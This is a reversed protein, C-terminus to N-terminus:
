IIGEKDAFWKAVKIEIEEGRGFEAAEISNCTANSLCVKPIWHDEEDEFGILIAKATQYKYECTISVYEIKDSM